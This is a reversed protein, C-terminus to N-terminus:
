RDAADGPQTEVQQLPEAAMPKKPKRQRRPTAAAPAIEDDAPDDASRTTQVWELGASAIVSTLEEAKLPVAVIPTAPARVEQPVSEDQPVSETQGADPLREEPVPRRAAERVGEQADPAVPPAAERTQALPATAAASDPLDETAPQSVPVDMDSARPFLDGTTNSQRATPETGQVAGTGAGTGSPQALAM